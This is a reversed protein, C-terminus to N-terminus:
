DTSRTELQVFASLTPGGNEPTLPNLLLPQGDVREIVKFVTDDQLFRTHESTDVRVDQRDGVAYYSLDVLSLDGQTGLTAPAKRSFVIPRGLLTFSLAKNGAGPAVMVASGGTGVPLAM